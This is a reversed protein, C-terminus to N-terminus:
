GRVAADVAFAGVWATLLLGRARAAAVSRPPWALWLLPPAALAMAQAWRRLDPHAVALCAALVPVVLAARAAAALRERSPPSRDM